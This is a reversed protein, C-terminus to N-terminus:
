IGYTLLSIVAFITALALTGESFPVFLSLGSIKAALLAAVGVVQFLMKLKGYWNASLYEGRRRRMTATLILLVEILVIVAAFTQNVEKAVFLTVISGILLKDAAPDAMTGWMTIQKRVRALVGDMVDTLAAFIFLVFAVRWDSIWVYYLILPTILFRLITLHNPRIDRPILPVVTKALLKDHWYLRCNENTMLMGPYKEPSELGKRQQCAVMRIM